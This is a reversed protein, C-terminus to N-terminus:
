QVYTKGHGNSGPCFHGDPDMPEGCFPCIPRGAEVVNLTHYAFANALARPVTFRGIEPEDGEEVMEQVIVVIRDSEEDFGVGMQAIRWTPIVPEILAFDIGEDLQPIARSYADSIQDLLSLLGEGLARMQEKECIMSVFEIGRGAQFYFTRQGPQGIAGITMHDAPDFDYNFDSM